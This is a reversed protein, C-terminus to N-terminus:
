LTERALALERGFHTGCTGFGKGLRANARRQSPSRLAGVRIRSGDRLEYARAGLSGWRVGPIANRPMNDGQWMRHHIGGDFLALGTGTGPSPARRGGEAPADVPVACRMLPKAM